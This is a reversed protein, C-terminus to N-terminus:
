KAVQVRQGPVVKHLGTTIVEDGDSIPGQVYVSQNNAFLVQVSKRGVINQEDLTFINWTGRIGDILATNPLWYGSKVYEKKYSLYALEGDLIESDTQDLLFRLSVNRSNSDINSGQSILTAEHEIDGVRIVYHDQAEIKRIDSVHIGILAEKNSDSLLEFTADGVSVVDGLSVFRKSVIGSYPANITSKQHKLKNTSITANIRLANAELAEKQSILLDIESESSFGKKKLSYQRKLNANTLKQQAKIEKMQADLQKLETLLLKIDLRVLPQGKEVVEGVDVHIESIKGSLEFGLNSKQGAQISGVYERTVTYSQSESILQSEVTLRQKPKQVAVTPDSCASLFFVASVIATNLIPFSM